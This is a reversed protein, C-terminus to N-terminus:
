KSRLAVLGLTPEQYLFTQRSTFEFGINRCRAEVLVRAIDCGSIDPLFAPTSSFWFYNLLVHYFLFKLPTSLWSLSVQLRCCPCPMFFGSLTPTSSPCFSSFDSRVGFINAILFFHHNKEYLNRLLSWISDFCCVQIMQFAIGGDSNFLKRTQFILISTCVELCVIICGYNILTNIAAVTNIIACGMLCLCARGALCSSFPCLECACWCGGPDVCTQESDGKEWKM